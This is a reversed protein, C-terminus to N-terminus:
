EQPAEQPAPAADIVSQDPLSSANNIIQSEIADRMQLSRDGADPGATGIVNAIFAILALGGALYWTLKEIFESSRRSGLMQTAGSAGFTSSLGGGKSNQIVVVFILSIAVLM